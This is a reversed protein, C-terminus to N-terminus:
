FRLSRNGPDDQQRASMHELEKQVASTVEQALADVDVQHSQSDGSQTAAAQGEARAAANDEALRVQRLAESKQNDALFVLQQLRRVLGMLRDAGLGQQGQTRETRSLNTFGRLVQTSPMTGRPNVRRGPAAAQPLGMASAMEGAERAADAAAESRIEEILRLVPSPLTRASKLSADQRSIARMVDGSGRAVAFADLLGGVTGRVNTQGVSRTAWGPLDGGAEGDEVRALTLDLGSRRSAM